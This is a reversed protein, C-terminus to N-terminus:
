FITDSIIMLSVLFVISIGFLSLQNLASSKSVLPLINIQHFLEKTLKLMQNANEKSNCNDQDCLIIQSFDEVPVTSPSTFSYVFTISTENNKFCGAHFSSTSNLQEFVCKTKDDPSLCQESKNSINDFCSTVRNSSSILMLYNVDLVFKVFQTKMTVTKSVFRRAENVSCFDNSHCMSLYLLTKKEEPTFVINITMAQFSPIVLGNGHKRIRDLSLLTVTIYEEVYNTLVSVICEDDNVETINTGCPKPWENTAPLQENM